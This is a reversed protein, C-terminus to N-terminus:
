HTSHSKILHNSQSCCLLASWLKPIGLRCGEKRGKHINEVNGWYISHPFVNLNKHRTALLLIEGPVARTSGAPVKLLVLYPVPLLSYHVPTRLRQLFLKTCHQWSIKPLKQMCHHQNKKQDGLAPRLWATWQIGTRGEAASSATRSIFNAAWLTPTSGLPESHIHEPRFCILFIKYADGTLLRLM